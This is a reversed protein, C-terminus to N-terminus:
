GHYSIATKAYFHSTSIKYLLSHKSLYHSTIKNYLIYRTAVGFRINLWSHARKMASHTWLAYNEYNRYENSIKSIGNRYNKIILWLSWFPMSNMFNENINKTSFEWPTCLSSFDVRKEGYITVKFAIQCKSSLRQHLAFRFFISNWHCWSLTQSRFAHLIKNFYLWTYLMGIPNAIKVSTISLLNYTYAHYTCPFKHM